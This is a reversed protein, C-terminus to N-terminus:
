KEVATQTQAIVEGGNRANNQGSVVLREGRQLGSVVEINTGREAGLVISKMKAIMKGNETEVVYVSPSKISGVIALRPIMLAERAENT